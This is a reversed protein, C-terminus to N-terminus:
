RLMATVTGAAIMMTLALFFMLGVAALAAFVYMMSKGITRLCGVLPTEGLPQLVAAAAYYVLSMALVKVAPFACILLLAIVGFMGIASKVLLSAAVVTDTADAFLRGVVPVFNSAVFKATRVAVGDAVAAVAGRATMVGLFVTVFGGLLVAGANRLLDALHSVKYRESMASVIHLVASFFFLPFVVANILSGTAHVMFVVLPHLVAASAANGTSVLLTLLLPILAIMVHVMGSVAEKAYGIAVRFSEAAIGTLMLFVVVSAIKGVNSKEFSSQLHGLMVGLIAILVLVALLRGQKELEDFLFRALGTLYAVASPREKDRVIETSPAFAPRDRPLYADYQRVLASWQRDLEGTDLRSWQRDALEEPAVGHPQESAVAGFAATATVGAVAFWGAAAFIAVGRVARSTM